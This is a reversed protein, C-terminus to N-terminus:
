SYAPLNAFIALDIMFERVESETSATLMVSWRLAQPPTSHGSDVWLQGEIARKCYGTIIRV